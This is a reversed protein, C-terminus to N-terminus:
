KHKFEGLWSILCCDKEPLDQCNCNFPITQQKLSWIWNKLYVATELGNSSLVRFAWNESRAIQAPIAKPANRRLMNTTGNSLFNM